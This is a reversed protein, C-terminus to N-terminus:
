NEGYILIIKLRVQQDSRFIYNLKPAMFWNVLFTANSHAFSLIRAFATPGPGIQVGSNSDTLTYTQSIRTLFGLTVRIKIDLLFLFYLIIYSYLSM